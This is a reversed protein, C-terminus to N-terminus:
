AMGRELTELHKLCAAKVVELLLAAREGLWNLAETHTPPRETTLRGIANTKALLRRM